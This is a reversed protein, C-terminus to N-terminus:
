ESSSDASLYTELTKMLTEPGFPKTIYDSTGAMRGRVKDFFGDKGSIMVVPIDKSAPNSRIQKCVQYGDMRPMAIDLLVLDPIADEIKALGDIGDVACVVNHGAKVLKGSILKRVTPSDDVVLITKGMPRSGHVEDQRRLEELRIAIAHIQGSLIVNNPDLMSAEQLYKFGPDYNQLNFYGVGLATLERENFERENWEAEMRTVAKQIADRDARTNGLLAEIDSIKLTAHCGGCEFAQPENDASCYPCAMETGTSAAQLETLSMEAQAEPTPQEDLPEDSPEDVAVEVPEHDNALEENGTEAADTEHSEDFSDVPETEDPEVADASVEAPHDFTEAETPAEVFTTKDTNVVEDAPSLSEEPKPVPEIENVQDVHEETEDAARGVEPSVETIDLNEDGSHLDTPEPAANVNTEVPKASDVTATLFDFSSRAAVNEPDIELAKELSQMKELLSASLHSRLIWAEANRPDSQLANDLIEVAETNNGAIAAAKADDMASQVRAKTISALVNQADQNEPNITLVRNLFEVRNDESDAISAKWFWALECDPDYDLAQDLSAQALDAAGDKHADIGRNVFTKALLSVTAARWEVARDNGPNIDLVNDLFTLLEEPNESISALWMWADESQPAIESATILLTRAQVRDGNQAAAIGKKLLAQFAPSVSLEESLENEVLPTASVNPTFELRM